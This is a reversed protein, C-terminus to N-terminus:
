QSPYFNESTINFSAIIQDVTDRDAGDAYSFRLIFTKGEHVIHVSRIEGEATSPETFISVTGIIGDFYVDYQQLDPWTIIYEFIDEIVQVHLFIGKKYYIDDHGAGDEVIVELDPSTAELSSLQQGITSQQSVEWDEPILFQFLQNSDTVLKVHSEDSFEDPFYELSQIIQDSLDKNEPTIDSVYIGLDNGDLYFHYVFRNRIGTLQTDYGRLGDVEIYDAYANNPSDLHANSFEEWSRPLLDYQLLGYMQFNGSSPGGPCGYNQIYFLYADLKSQDEYNVSPDKIVCLESPIELSIGLQEFTVRKTQSIETTATPTPEPQEADETPEPQVVDATPEPTSTEVGIEGTNEIDLSQSGCATLLLALLLGLLALSSRSIKM